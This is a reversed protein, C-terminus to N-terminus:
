TRQYFATECLQAFFGHDTIGMGILLEDGRGIKNQVLLLCAGQVFNRLREVRRFIGPWNQKVTHGSGTLGFNIQLRDPCRKIAAAGRDNEHRFNRQRRLCDFAKFATKGIHRICDRHQVAMQRLAFAVVLPVFNMGSARADHNTCAAGNERRQFIKPEDDDIFFM